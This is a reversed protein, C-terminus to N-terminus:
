GASIQQTPVDNDRLVASGFSAPCFQDTTYYCDVDDDDIPMMFNNLLSMVVILFYPGVKPFILLM